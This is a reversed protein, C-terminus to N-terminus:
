AKGLQISNVLCSFSFRSHSVLLLDTMFFFVFRNLIGLRNKKKGKVAVPCSPLCDPLSFKFFFFFFLPFPFPFFFFGFCFFLFVGEFDDEEVEVKM